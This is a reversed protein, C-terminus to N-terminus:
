QVNQTKLLNSMKQHRVDCHVVLAGESWIRDDADNSVRCRIGEAERTGKPGGADSLSIVLM